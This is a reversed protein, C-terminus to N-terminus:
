TTMASPVDLNVELTCKHESLVKTSGRTSLGLSYGELGQKISGFSIFIVCLWVVSCMSKERYSSCEYNKGQNM